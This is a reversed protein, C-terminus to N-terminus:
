TARAVCVCGCVCVFSIGLQALVLMLEDVVGDFVEVDAGVFM